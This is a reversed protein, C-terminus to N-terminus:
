TVDPGIAVITYHQYCSHPANTSLYHCSFFQHSWLFVQGLAVKDVACGVQVMLNMCLLMFDKGASPLTCGPWRKHCRQMVETWLTSGAERNGTVLLIVPSVPSLEQSEQFLELCSVMSTDLLALLISIPSRIMLCCSCPLHQQTWAPLTMHSYTLTPLPPSAQKM